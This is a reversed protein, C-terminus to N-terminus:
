ASVVLAYIFEQLRASENETIGEKPLRLFAMTGDDLPFPYEALRRDKSRYLDSM